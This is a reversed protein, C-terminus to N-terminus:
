YCAPIFRYCLQWTEPIIGAPSFSVLIKMSVALFARAHTDPIFIYEGPGCSCRGTSHPPLRRTAFASHLGKPTGCVAASPVSEVM